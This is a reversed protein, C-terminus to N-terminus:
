ARIAILKEIFLKLDQFGNKATIEFQLAFGESVKRSASIQSHLRALEDDRLFTNEVVMNVVM